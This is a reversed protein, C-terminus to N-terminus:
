PRPASTAIGYVGYFGRVMADASHREHALARAAAGAAERARPDAILKSLAAAMEAPERVLFGAATGALLDRNGVIDTAVVPLGAAMAEIVSVPMGEWASTQIYIQLDSVDRLAEPRTRWGTVHVGADLLAQKAAEDGDGIWVFDAEGGLARAVQAFFEPRKQASIRGCTGVRVRPTGAPAAAPVESLDVGNEVVARRSPAVVGELAEREGDSCAVVTSGLLGLVQEITRYAWRSRNSIDRRLYALGHPQYVVRARLPFCAVRGLAGAKSSHLHVVDPELRRVERWLRAVGRLDGGPSIERLMPVDIFRAQAPIAERWAAPTDSRVQSGLLTVDHGDRVQARMLTSLVSLVGTVLSESIHVIRAL